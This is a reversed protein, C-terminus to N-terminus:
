SSKEVEITKASKKAGKWEILIKNTGEKLPFYHTSISNNREFLMLSEGTSQNTVRLIRGGCSEATLRLLNADTKTRVTKEDQCSFGVTRTTREEVSQEHSVSALGRSVKAQIVSPAPAPAPARVFAKASLACFAVAAVFLAYDPWGHLRSKKEPLLAM